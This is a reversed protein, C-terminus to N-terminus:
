QSAGPLLGSARLVSGDPFKCYNVQNLKTDFLIISEGRKKTCAISAASIAYGLPDTAAWIENRKEKLAKAADCNMSPFCSKSIPTANWNEVEFKRIEELGIRQFLVESASAFDVCIFLCAMVAVIRVM